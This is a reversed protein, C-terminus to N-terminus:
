NAPYEGANGASVAVNMNSYSPELASTFNLKM